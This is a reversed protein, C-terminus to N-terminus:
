GKAAPRQEPHLEWCRSENHTIGGSHPPPPPPKIYYNHFGGGL